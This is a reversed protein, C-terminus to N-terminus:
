YNKDIIKTPKGFLNKIKEKWKKLREESSAAKLKTRLPSKNRSM